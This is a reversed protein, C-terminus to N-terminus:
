FIKPYIISPSQTVNAENRITKHQLSIRHKDSENCRIEVHPILFSAIFAFLLCTSERRRRIVQIHNRKHTHTKKRTLMQEDHMHKYRTSYLARKGKKAYPRLINWQTSLGFVNSALRCRYLSNLICGPDQHCCGVVCWSSDCEVRKNEKKPM